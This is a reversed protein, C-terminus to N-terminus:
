GMGKEMVKTEGVKRIARAEVKAKLIGISRLNRPIGKAEVRARPTHIWQLAKPIVRAVVKARLIGISQLSKRTAKGEEEGQARRAKPIVKARAATAKRNSL